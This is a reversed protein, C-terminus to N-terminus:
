SRVCKWDGAEFEFDHACCICLFRMAFNRESWYHLWLVLPSTKFDCLYSSISPFRFHTSNFPYCQMVTPLFSRIHLTPSLILWFCLLFHLRIKMFNSSIIISQRLVPWVQVEGRLRVWFRHGVNHPCSNANINSFSARIMFLLWTMVFSWSDFVCHIPLADLSKHSENDITTYGHCELSM